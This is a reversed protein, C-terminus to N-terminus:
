VTYQFIMPFWQFGCCCGQTLSMAFWSYSNLLLGIITVIWPLRSMSCSPLSTAPCLFFSRWQWALKARSGGGEVTCALEYNDDMESAEKM